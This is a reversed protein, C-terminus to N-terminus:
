KSEGELVADPLDAEINRISTISRTLLTLQLILFGAIMFMFGIGRGKGTGIFRGLTDSLAGNEMLLPNFVQDALYGSISYSLILGLSSMMGIVAYVRGQFHHEVKSRIIVDISSNLYPLIFFFIFCPIFIVFLNPQVGILLLSAGVVAMSVTLSRFYPKPVGRFGIVISSLLMGIASISQGVGYLLPTTTSLIMPGILVILFGLFFDMGSLLLILALLPFRDYLYQYGSIITQFMSGQRDKKQLPPVQILSIMLIAFCFSIIDFILIGEIKITSILLGGLLPSVIYQASTIAQVMGSAQAYQKKPTLQTILSLFSPSGLGSFFSSIAMGIMIYVFDLGGKWFMVAVLMIGSMAGINGLIVLVKRNYRDALGGSFTRVLISPLVTALSIASFLAASETKQYIYVSLAFGTLGSGIISILEGIWVILFKQFSTQMGYGNMYDEGKVIQRLADFYIAGPIWVEL